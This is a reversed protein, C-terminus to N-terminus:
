KAQIRFKLDSVKSTPFDKQIRKLIQRKQFNLEQLTVSDTVYLHLVGARLNGVQVAEAIGPGVVEAVSSFLEETASAQSYGRRAMLQGLLTGIKQVRPKDKAQEKSKGTKM